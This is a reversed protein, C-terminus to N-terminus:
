KEGKLVPTSRLAGITEFDDCMLLHHHFLRPSLNDPHVHLEQPIANSIEQLDAKDVDLEGDENVGAKITGDKIGKDIYGMQLCLMVISTCVTGSKPKGDDTDVHWDTENPERQDYAKKLLALAKEFPREEAAYMRSMKSVAYPIIFNILAEFAARDDESLKDVEPRMGMPMESVGSTARSLTPRSKPTSRSITKESMMSESMILESDSAAESTPESDSSSHYWERAISLAKRFNENRVEERAHIRNEPTDELKLVVLAAAMQTSFYDDFQKDSYRRDYALLAQNVAKRAHEPVAWMKMYKTFSAQVDKDKCLVVLADTPQPDSVVLARIAGATAHVHKPKKGGQVVVSVSAGAHGAIGSGQNFLSLKGANVPLNQFCMTVVHNGPGIKIVDGHILIASKPVNQWGGINRAFYFEMLGDTPLITSIEGAELAGLAETKAADGRLRRMDASKEITYQIANSISEYALRVFLASDYKSPHLLRLHKFPAPLLDKQLALFNAVKRELETRV